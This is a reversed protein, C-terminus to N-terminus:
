PSKKSLEELQRQVQEEWEEMTLDTGPVVIVGHPTDIDLGLKDKFMGLHREIRELASGKNNLRMKYKTGDPLTVELVSLVAAEDLTLEHIAKPEGTPKFLRRIDAFAIRAEEELVRDQKIEVRKSRNEMAESIADLVYSKTVLRRGIVENKYGARLAAQSANLDILYEEVFRKQKATLKRGRPNGGAV